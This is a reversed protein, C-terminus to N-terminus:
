GRRGVGVMEVLGLACLIWAMLQEVYLENAYFYPDVVLLGRGDVCRGRRLNRLWRRERANRPRCGAEEICRLLFLALERHAEIIVGDRVLEEVAEEKTPPREVM